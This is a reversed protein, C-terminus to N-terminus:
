NFVLVKNWSFASADHPVQALQLLKPFPATSVLQDFRIERKTTRAVKTELDIGVLRESLAIQSAPVESALAKVYEIAGGEPYTFTANYSANDPERMNRIIDAVDAHPFFRGMADKDLKGLDCAYLKENYPILFKEAISRGFRAYLMEKFSREPLP